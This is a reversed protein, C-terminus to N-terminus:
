NSRSKQENELIENLKKLIVVQVRQMECVCALVNDIGGKEYLVQTSIRLEAEEFETM